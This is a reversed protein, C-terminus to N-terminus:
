ATEFEFNTCSGYGKNQLVGDIEHELESAVLDNCTATFTFTWTTQRTPLASQRLNCNLHDVFTDYESCWDRNEAESLLANGITEIDARLRENETELAQVRDPVQTQYVGRSDTELSTEFNTDTMLEEEQPETHQWGAALYVNVAADFSPYPSRRPGFTEDDIMGGTGTVEARGDETETLTRTWTFAAGRYILEAKRPAEPEPPVTILMGLKPEVVEFGKVRWYDVAEDVTNYVSTWSVGSGFGQRETVLIGESTQKITVGHLPDNSAQLNITTM